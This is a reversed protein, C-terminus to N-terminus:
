PLALTFVGIQDGAGRLALGNPGAALACTKGVPIGQKVPESGKAWDWANLAGDAGVFMAQSASGALAACRIPGGVDHQALSLGSKADLIELIGSLRTVVLRKDDQSFAIYRAPGGTSDVRSLSQLDKTARFQMAGDLSWTVLRKGDNSFAMGLLIQGDGTTTARIQNATVDYLILSGDAFVAALTLGDPAIAVSTALPPLDLQQLVPQGFPSQLTVVHGERTIGVVVLGDRDLSASKLDTTALRWDLTGGDTDFATAISPDSLTMGRAGDPSLAAFFPHNLASAPILVNPTPPRAAAVPTIAPAVPVPTEPLAATTSGRVTPTNDKAVPTAAAVKANCVENAKDQALAALVPCEHYSDIFVKLASCSSSNELVAWDARGLGCIFSINKQADPLAPPVPEPQAVVVPAPPPLDPAARLVIDGDLQDYVAPFQDQGVSSAIKKVNTRLEAALGKLTIGPRDLLGILVRAFVSNPDRDSPGLSDLAAQNAAASYIVYTGDPQGEVPVLGRESGLGRSTATSFPNNRCADLILLIVSPSQAHLESVIQDVPISLSTLIFKQGSNVKPVDAPILYNRGDIEVGHGAYYFAVIDGPKIRASVKSLEELFTRQDPNEVLTTDFRAVKLRTEISKADNVARLLPPVNVYNDIGIVLAIRDQAMVPGAQFGLWLCVAFSFIAVYILSHFAAFRTSQFPKRM